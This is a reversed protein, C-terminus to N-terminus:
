INGFVKYYQPTGWLKLRLMADKDQNLKNKLLQNLYDKNDRIDKDTFNVQKMERRTHCAPCKRSTRGGMFDIGCNKCRRSYVKKRERRGM